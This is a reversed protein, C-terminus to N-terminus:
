IKREVTEKVFPIAEFFDDAAFIRYALVMGAQQEFDQSGLKLFSYGCAFVQLAVVNDCEAVQPNDECGPNVHIGRIISM